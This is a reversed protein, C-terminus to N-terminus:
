LSKHLVCVCVESASTKSANKRTTVMKDDEDDIVMMIVNERLMWLFYLCSIGGPWNKLSERLYYGEM